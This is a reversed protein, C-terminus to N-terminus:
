FVKSSWPQHGAIRWDEGPIRWTGVERHNWLPGSLPAGGGGIRRDIYPDPPHIHHQPILGFPPIPPQISVINHRPPPWM